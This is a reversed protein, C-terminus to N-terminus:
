CGASTRRAAVGIWTGAGPRGRGVPGVRHGCRRRAGRRRDVSGRWPTSSAARVPGDVRAPPDDPRGRPCGPVPGPLSGARRTPRRWGMSPPLASTLDCSPGIRRADHSHAAVRRCPTRPRAAGGAPDHARDDSPEPWPAQEAVTRRGPQTLGGARTQGRRRRADACWAPPHGSALTRLDHAPHGADGGRQHTARVSEQGYRCGARARLQAQDPREIGEAVVRLGLAAGLGVIAAGGALPGASAEVPPTSSPEPRGQARRGPVAPPLEVLLLRDRLRRHGCRRGDRPLDGCPLWRGVRANDVLVSETIEVLALGRAPGGGVPGGHYGRVCRRISSSGARVPERERRPRRASGRAAMARAQVRRRGAALSGLGRHAPRKPSASSSGPLRRGEPHDWRVLAEVNRTGHRRRRRRDAPLSRPAAGRPSRTEVLEAQSSTGSRRDRGCRRRASANVRAAGMAKAATFRSTRTACLDEATASGTRGGDGISVSAACGSARRGRPSACGRWQGARRRGAPWRERRCGELVVGFEDGGLRAAVDGARLSADLTMAVDPLVGTEARMGWGNTSSSSTTSTSSCCPWVADTACRAACPM